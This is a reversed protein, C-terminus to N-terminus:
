AKNSRDGASAATAVRIAARCVDSSDGLAVALAGLCHAFLQLPHEDLGAAPSLGIEGPQQRLKNRGPSLDIGARANAPM